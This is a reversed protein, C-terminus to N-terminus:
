DFISGIWSGVVVAAALPVAVPAAAILAGGVATSALGAGVTTATAAGIAHATAAAAASSVVSAAAGTVAGKVGAKAVDAAAEGLEKSGDMVGKISSVAEVAAGVCAGFEAGVTAGAKLTAATPTKGLVKDSISKTYDSSIGSSKIRRLAKKALEANSGSGNAIKRITSVTEPSAVIRTNDYQGGAIKKITDIAGSVSSTDKVQMSGVVKGGKSIVIDKATAVTSRTLSAHSLHSVNHLDKLLVEQVHGHLNKCKGARAAAEAGVKAEYAQLGCAAKNENNM